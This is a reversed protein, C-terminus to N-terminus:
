DNEPLFGNKALAFIVGRLLYNNQFAVVYKRKNEGVPVLMKKDRLRGILRSVESVNKGTLVDQIDKNVIEKREVAKKLITAETGTITERESSFDIAPFLINRSLFEYDVIKDIKEIERKLGQLVYSSWELIGADDGRDAVSLAEVYKKRDHCFVAAPNIIRGINVNFGQKVLM